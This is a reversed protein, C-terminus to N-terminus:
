QKTLESYLDPNENALKVREQYGMKQFQEKTYTPKEGGGDPIHTGDKLEKGKLKKSADSIRAAAIEAFVESYAKIDDAKEVLKATEEATYGKSLLTKELAYTSNEKELAKIRNERDTAAAAKKEDETMHAKQLEELAKEANAKALEAADWKKKDVYSGTALDALKKGALATEIEAQTMNDKYAEGLLEKLAM